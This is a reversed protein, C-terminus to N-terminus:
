GALRSPRKAAYASAGRQENRYRTDFLSLDFEHDLLHNVAHAFSGPLLQKALDVALFRPSTDITKYRAM